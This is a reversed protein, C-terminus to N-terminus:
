GMAALRTGCSGCFLDGPNTPAGCRECFRRYGDDDASDAVESESPAEPDPAPAVEPESSEKPNPAPAVEAEPQAALELSDVEAGSASAVLSIRAGQGELRRWSEAARLESDRVKRVLGAYAELFSANGSEGSLIAMGLEGYASEVDRRRREYEIQARIARIEDDVTDTGGNSMASDDGFPGM